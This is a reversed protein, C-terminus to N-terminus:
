GRDAAYGDCTRAQVEAPLLAVLAPMAVLAAVHLTAGGTRALAAARQLAPSHRMRPDVIVLLRQFQSM